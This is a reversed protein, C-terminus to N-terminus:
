FWTLISIQIIFILCFSHNANSTNFVAFTSNQHALDPLISLFCARVQSRLIVGPSGSYNDAQELARFPVIKKKFFVYILGPKRVM